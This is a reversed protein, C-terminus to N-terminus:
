QKLLSKYLKIYANASKGWSNDSEMARRVLVEWGEKVAFGELARRIANLMDDADYKQFTFGNGLNDGSDTISDKLGGTERV